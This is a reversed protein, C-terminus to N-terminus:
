PLQWRRRLIWEGGLLVVVLLGQMPLDYRGPWDPLVGVAAMAARITNSLPISRQVSANAAPDRAILEDLLTPLGALNYHFGKTQDAIAALLKPNAALKLMEDAPPIVTFKLSQNGLPKGEKTAAIDAVWDGKEPKPITAEYLGIHADVPQLTVERDGQGAHRLTLKVQAFRTADGREDRVMARVRVDEGLQYLSKNLLAEVGAGRNRDKVDSGALWRTLQGWFRNYPSDQGMGRLPLYWLYTTDATFAASRGKGFRQTALVIQPQGDNAPRDPHVLLVEAGSKPKEVVVNGRLAPLERKAPTQDSGFWELLGDMAPHGAGAATLRPVFPTADQGGTKPGVFVPLAEEIATGAYAGPGFSTQGGIMLLGAGDLAAQRIDGQQGATLFSVDLDGLIIVNFAKWQEATTPLQKLPEGDVSGSAAFRDQQIRLLAALEINPDRELARRLERYEPRARGEVYLVKIRPDLALGQFEQRNDVTSREGPIPDIWVALRVIGVSKPTYPLEVRQGGVLPQLVLKETAVLAGAKGEADIEALKVEVVRNALASSQVTVALNSAHNVVLETKPQVDTVAINALTAPEAQESGVSITHIARRSAKASAAADPSTNDIGDSILMVEADPRNTSSLTKALAAVIDTSQGDPQIGALKAPDSLEEASTSFVFFRPVFHDRVKALQPEITQWVSQLRTPGNQVDPVSMSGSTDILFLLPREPKPRAVYRIVPEFLMPVLLALALLRMALLTGVRRRTLTARLNLYFVASLDALVIFTWIMGALPRRLDPTSLVVGTGAIGFAALSVITWRHSSAWVRGALLHAALALAALVCVLTWLDWDGQRLIDISWHNM